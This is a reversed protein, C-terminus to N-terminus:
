KYYLNTDSFEVSESDVAGGVSYVLIGLYNHNKNSAKLVM